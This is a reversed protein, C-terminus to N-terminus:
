RGWLVRKIERSRSPHRLIQFSRRVVQRVREGTIGEEETTLNTLKKGLDRYSMFDSDKPVDLGFYLRMVQEGRPSISALKGLAAEVVKVIDKAKSPDIEIANFPDLQNNTRLSDEKHYTPFFMAQVFSAYGRINVKDISRESSKVPDSLSVGGFVDPSIESNYPGGGNEPSGRM